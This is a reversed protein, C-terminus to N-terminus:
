WPPRVSRDPAARAAPPIAVIFRCTLRELDAAAHEHKAAAATRYWLLAAELDADVGRGEEYM